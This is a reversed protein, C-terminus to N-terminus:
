SPLLSKIDALENRSLEDLDPFSKILEEVPHTLSPLRREFITLKQGSLDTIVDLANKIMVDLSGREKLSLIGKSYGWSGSGISTKARISQINALSPAILNPDGEGEIFVLGAGDPTLTLEKTEIKPLREVEEAVRIVQNEISTSVLMGSKLVLDRGAEKFKLIAREDSRYSIGTNINNIAFVGESRAARLFDFALLKSNGVFGSELVESKLNVWSAFRESPTKSIEGRVKPCSKLYRSTFWPQKTWFPELGTCFDGRDLLVITLGNLALQHALAIGLLDGGLVVIDISELGVLLDIIEERNSYPHVLYKKPGHVFISYYEAFSM